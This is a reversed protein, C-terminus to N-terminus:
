KWALRNLGERGSYCWLQTWDAFLCAKFGYGKGYVRLLRHGCICPNEFGELREKAIGSNRSMFKILPRNTMICWWFYLNGGQILRDKWLWVAIKRQSKSFLLYGPYPLQVFCLDNKRTSHILSGQSSLEPIFGSKPYNTTFVLTIVRESHPFLCSSTLSRM